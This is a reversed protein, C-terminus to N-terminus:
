AAAPPQRSSQAKAGILVGVAGLLPNLLAIWVPQRANQVAEFLTVTEPRAASAVEAASGTIAPIAFILGLVIIVGILAQPGRPNKAIAACVFGGAVAAAISLAIGLVNWLTSPDWSGPQFSGSAGLILYAASLFAFVAVVMTLYGAVVSGIIRGM